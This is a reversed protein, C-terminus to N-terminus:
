QSRLCAADYILIQGEVRVALWQDQWWQTEIAWTTDTNIDLPSPVAITLPKNGGRTQLLKLDGSSDLYVVESGSPSWDPILMEESSQFDAAPTEVPPVWIAKSFNQGTSAPQAGNTNVQYTDMCTSGCSANVELLGESLWQVVKKPSSWEDTLALSGPFLDTVKGSGNADVVAITYVSDTRRLGTFAIQQGNPSWVLNGTAWDAIHLTTDFAPAATVALDGICWQEDETPTVYALASGDPAWSMMSGQYKEAQTAPLSQLICALTPPTPSAEAGSEGDSGVDCGSLFLCAAVVALALGGRLFRDVYSISIM